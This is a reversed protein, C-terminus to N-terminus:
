GAVIYTASATTEAGNTFELTYKGPYASRTGDVNPLELQADSVTFPVNVVGGAAVHVRKFDILQRRPTPVGNPRVFQPSFYLQVVEDSDVRGINKVTARYAGQSGAVSISWNTYTLGFGFEFLSPPM